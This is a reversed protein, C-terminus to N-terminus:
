LFLERGLSYPKIKPNGKILIKMRNLDMDKLSFFKSNNLPLFPTTSGSGL